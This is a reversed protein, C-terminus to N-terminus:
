RGTMVESLTVRSDAMQGLVFQSPWQIILCLAFGIIALVAPLPHSCALRELYEDSLLRGDFVHHHRSQRLRSRDHSV